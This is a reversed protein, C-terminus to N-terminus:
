QGPLQVVARFNAVDYAAVVDEGDLFIMRDARWVLREAEVIPCANQCDTGRRFHVYGLMPEPHWHLQWRRM